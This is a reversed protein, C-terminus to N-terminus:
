KGFDGATYGACVARCDVSEMNTKSSTKQLEYKEASITVTGGAKLKCEGQPPKLKDLDSVYESLDELQDPWRGTQTEYIAIASDLTTLDAQVKSTNAMAITSNFKPVAITALIGLIAVAILIGLLSFGAQGSDKM